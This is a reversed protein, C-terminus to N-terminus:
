KKKANEYRQQAELTKAQAENIREQRKEQELQERQAPTLHAEDWSKQGQEKARKLTNHGRNEEFTAKAEAKRQEFEAKDVQHQAQANKKMNSFAKKLFNSM